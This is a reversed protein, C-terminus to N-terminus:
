RLVGNESLMSEILERLEVTSWERRVFRQQPCELCMAPVDCSYYFGMWSDQPCPKGTFVTEKSNCIKM